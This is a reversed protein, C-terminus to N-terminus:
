IIEEVPSFGKNKVFKMNHKFNSMCDSPDLMDFNLTAMTERVFLVSLLPVNVKKGTSTNLVKGKATCIIEEVPLIATLERAIRLLASCIYDQYLENYKGVPTDKISLKGSKLLSKSKKPIINEDHVNLTALLKDSSIYEIEINSGINKIESFPSFDEVVQKYYDINGKLVNKSINVIREYENLEIEYNNIKFSYDKDDQIIGNSIKEKIKSINKEKLRFIKDILDPKYNDLVNQYHIEKERLKIPKEPPNKDILEKWNCVPGCDKQLSTIRDIYNEYTNFEYEAKELEQMKEYNKKQKDLEKQRRISDREMQKVASSISRITGKYGM